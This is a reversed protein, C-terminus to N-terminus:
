HIDRILVYVRNALKVQERGSSGRSVGDLCRRFFRGTEEAAETRLLGDPQSYGASTASTSSPGPSQVVEFNDQELAGVRDRLLEVEERLRALERRLARVEESM